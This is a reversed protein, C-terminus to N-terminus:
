RVCIGGMSRVKLIHCSGKGFVAEIKERYDEVKENKVFAQITGAFGGGHIRCVGNEGLFHETVALALTINQSSVDKPSYINQLFKASSDGSEQIVRLFANYDSAKLAAVATEVRKEEEFFHIARLLARDSVKKRLEPLSQYFEEEPIERLVQKGLLRAVQRMEVTVAAYDPTLDAHSGKTEVICLSIGAREFDSEVKEAVPHEKDEFDIYVMGGTSCAMQDLLGCPKGFYENEAYQGIQALEVPSIRGDNYLGSLITGTLIEFAASSSLGAGMPVDSIVCAKFGGVRYGRNRIGAAVGRILAATTSQEEERREPKETDIREMPFDGSVLQILSGESRAVIAVVDLNVSVGLVKGNQHDTHNGCVESRGPASYIEVEQEDPFLKEFRELAARYRKRQYDIKSEDVYIERFRGDLKGGDLENKIVAINKM